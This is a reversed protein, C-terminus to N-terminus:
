CTPARARLSLSPSRSRPSQPPVKGLGGGKDSVLGLPAWAMVPCFCLELFTHKQFTTHNNPIKANQKTKFGLFSNPNCHTGDILV